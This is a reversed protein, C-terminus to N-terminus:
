FKMIAWEIDPFFRRHREAMEEAAERSLGDTHVYGNELLAWGNYKKM